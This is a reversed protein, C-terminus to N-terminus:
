ENGVNCVCARVCACVCARVCVVIAGMRASGMRLTSKVACVSSTDSEGDRMVVGTVMGVVVGMVVRVVSSVWKRVAGMTHM